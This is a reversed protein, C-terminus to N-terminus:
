IFLAQLELPTDIGAVNYVDNFMIKLSRMTGIDGMLDTSSGTLIRERIKRITRSMENVAVLWGQSDLCEVLYESSERNTNPRRAM